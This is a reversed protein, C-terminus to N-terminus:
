GLLQDLWAITYALVQGKEPENHTEHYLGEWLKLTGHPILAALEQSGNPYTLTDATGHVILVPIDIEAAHAYIWPIAELNCKGMALTAKGHVLPDSLYIRVVDPDRSITNTDLGTNISLTPLLAGMTKVFGVLFKQEHLATKLAPSTIVAGAAPPKQHLLFSLALMGGLSHGYVIRPKGPFKQAATDWLHTIDGVFADMSPAHGRRGGSKGHGRLDFTLTAYGANAFTEAVHVYRGSHEGIGHVLCIVAKPNEPQWGQGFFSVGDPSIWSFEHHQTTM